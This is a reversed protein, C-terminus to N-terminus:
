NKPETNFKAVYLRKFRDPNDIKMASLGVSDKKHWEDFTWNARADDPQTNGAVNHLSVVEPILEVAKLTSDFDKDALMRYNTKQADTLAKKPNELIANLQTLKLAKESAKKEALEARLTQIESSDDPKAKLKKVAEIIQAESSDKPLGLEVLIQEKMPISKSIKPLKADNGASLNIVNMDSDYLRVADSNSPVTTAAIEILESDYATALSQGEKLFEPESVWKQVKLAVSFANMYRKEYKRALEAGLEDEVDFEPEGLLVGNEIRVNLMKGVSMRQADHNYTIVPNSTYRSIDIGETRVWFGHANVKETSLRYGPM